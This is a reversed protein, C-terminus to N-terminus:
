PKLGNTYLKQCNEGLACECVDGLPLPSLDLFSPHFAVNTVKGFAPLM